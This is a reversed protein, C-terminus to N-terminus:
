EAPGFPITGASFELQGFVGLQFQTSGSRQGVFSQRDDYSMQVGVDFGRVRTDLSVSLSRNIQDLFAVCQDRARTARCDREATYAALISLQIPRDLVAAWAGPPLFLSSVSVRHADESLDTAGTPDRAAGARSLGRYTTVISGMWTVSVDFPLQVDRQIRRQLGPADYVTERYIRSYGTSISVREIGSFEPFAIRPVSIQLDPWRRLTTRRDSRTDFTTAETREYAVQLTAGTPFVLGSALTWGAQDTLM